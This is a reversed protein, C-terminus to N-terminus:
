VTARPAGMLVLTAQPNLVRRCASWSRSGAVDLMLDYRRDTRTFDEQAYDTVGTPASRVSWTVNRTSCVGNSPVAVVGAHLLRHGIRDEKV